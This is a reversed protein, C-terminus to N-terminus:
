DEDEDFEDNEINNARIIADASLNYLIDGRSEQSLIYNRIEEITFTEEM